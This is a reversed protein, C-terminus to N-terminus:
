PWSTSRSSPRVQPNDTSDTSCGADAAARINGAVIPLVAAVTERVVSSSVEAPDDVHSGEDSFLYLQVSFVCTLEASRVQVAHLGIPTRLACLVYRHGREM